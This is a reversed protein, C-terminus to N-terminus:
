LKEHTHRSLQFLFVYLSIRIPVIFRERQIKTKIAAIPVGAEHDAKMKARFERKVVDFIERYKGYNALIRLNHARHQWGSKRIGIRLLEKTVKRLDLEAKAIASLEMGHIPNYKFMESELERRTFSRKSYRGSCNYTAFKRFNHPFLYGDGFSGNYTRKDFLICPRGCAMADYASRGIGIVLDAANIEDTIDFKPNAHKNIAKFGIDHSNCIEAIVTNAEESQCLSLVKKPTKNLSKKPRFIDLDVGNLIVTSPYGKDKLHTSVEESVAIHYDALPSPQELDPIPGHCIQIIPGQGYLYNVTTRHSAIILDYSNTAKFSVSLHKEIRASVMGTYFTFYEVLHGTDILSKILYYTYLESGGVTKLHNCAVLIRM